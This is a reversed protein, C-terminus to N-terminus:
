LLTALRAKGQGAHRELTVNILSAEGVQIIPVKLERALALTQIGSITAVANGRHRLQAITLAQQGIDPHAMCPLEVEQWICTRTPFFPSTRACAFGLVDTEAVVWGSSGLVITGATITSSRDLWLDEDRCNYLFAAAILESESYWYTSFKKTM